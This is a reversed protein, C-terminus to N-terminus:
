LATPYIYNEIERLIWKLEIVVEIRLVANVEEM